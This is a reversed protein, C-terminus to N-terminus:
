TSSIPSLIRAGESVSVNANSGVAAVGSRSAARFGDTLPTIITVGNGSTILM